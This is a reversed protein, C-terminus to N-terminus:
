VWLSYSFAIVSVHLTINTSMLRGAVACLGAHLQKNWFIPIFLTTKEGWRNIIYCLLSDAKSEWTELATGNSRRLTRRCSTIDVGSMTEHRKISMQIRNLVNSFFESRLPSYNDGFLLNLHSVPESAAYREMWSRDKCTCKCPERQERQGGQTIVRM